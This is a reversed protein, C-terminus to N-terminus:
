APSWGEADVESGIAMGIIEPLRTDLRRVKNEKELKELHALISKGGAHIVTQDQTDYLLRALLPIPIPVSDKDFLSIDAKGLPSTPAQKKWYVSLADALGHPQSLRRLLAVIQRERDLRHKIYTQIHSSVDAQGTIARGHAPYLTSAQLKALADLSEM